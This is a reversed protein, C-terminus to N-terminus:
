FRLWKVQTQKNAIHHSVLPRATKNHSLPFDKPPQWFPAELFSLSPLWACFPVQSGAIM